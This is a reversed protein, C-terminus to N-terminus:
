RDRRAGRSGGGTTSSSGRGAPCGGTIQAGHEQGVGGVGVRGERRDQGRELRRSTEVVELAPEEAIERLQQVPDIEVRDLGLGRRDGRSERLLRPMVDHVQEHHELEHLVRQARLHGVAHELEGVLEIHAEPDQVLAAVERVLM